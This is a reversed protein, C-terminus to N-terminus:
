LKKIIRKIKSHLLYKSKLEKKMDNIIYITEKCPIGLIIDNRKNNKLRYQINQEHTNLVSKFTEEETLEYKFCLKKM